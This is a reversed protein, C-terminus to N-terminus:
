AMSDAGQQGDTPELCFRVTIPGVRLVGDYGRADAPYKVPTLVDTLGFPYRIEVRDKFALVDGRVLRWPGIRNVVRAGVFVKGQWIWRTWRWWFGVTWGDYTGAPLPLLPPDLGELDM